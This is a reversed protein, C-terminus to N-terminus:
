MIFLDIVFETLTTNVFLLLVVYVHQLTKTFEDISNELSDVSLNALFDFSL